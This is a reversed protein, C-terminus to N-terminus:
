FMLDTRMSRQGNLEKAVEESEKYGDRDRGNSYGVTIFAENQSVQFLILGIKTISYDSVKIYPINLSM